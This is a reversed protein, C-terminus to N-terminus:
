STMIKQIMINDEEVGTVATITTNDTIAADTIAAAHNNDATTATDNNFIAAAPKQMIVAAISCCCWSYAISPQLARLLLMVRIMSEDM